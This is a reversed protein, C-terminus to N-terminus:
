SKGVGRGGGGSFNAEKLKGRKPYPATFIGYIPRPTNDHHICHLKSAETSSSPNIEASENPENSHGLAVFTAVMSPWLYTLLIHGWANDCQVTTIVCTDGITQAKRTNRRLVTYANTDLDFGRATSPTYTVVGPSNAVHPYTGHIDM